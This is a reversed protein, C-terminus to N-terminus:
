PTIELGTATFSCSGNVSSVFVHDGANMYIGSLSIIGHGIISTNYAIYSLAQQTGGFPVLAVTFQDATNTQNAVYIAFQAQLGGGVTYLPTNTAALPKAQGLIKPTTSM